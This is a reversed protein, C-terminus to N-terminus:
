RLQSIARERAARLREGGRKGFPMTAPVSAARAVDGGRGGGRASRRM